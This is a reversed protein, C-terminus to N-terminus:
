PESGAVGSVRPVAPKKNISYGYRYLLEHIDREREFREDHSDDFSQGLEQGDRGGPMQNESGAQEIEGAILHFYEFDGDLCSIQM